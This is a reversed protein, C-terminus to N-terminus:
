LSGRLVISNYYDLFQKQDTLPSKCTFNECLYVKVSGDYSFKGNIIGLKKILNEKGDFLVPDALIVVKNPLYKEFLISIMKQVEKSNSDGSIVIEKPSGWFYDLSGLLYAYSTPYKQVQDLYLKVSLEAKEKLTKDGTFEAIRLLNEITVSNGSPAANDYANRTKVLLKEHDSPTFYFSGTEEDWFKQILIDNLEFGNELYSLDFTTEYLDLLASIFLAYDSLFGNLHSKGNRYTRLVNGDKYMEKHLFDAAKKASSLYREDGLVQYGKCMASIMMGNWATIIKDDTNPAVRKTRERLLKQRYNQLRNKLEDEAINEQKSLDSLKKSVNLINKGEWNGNDSVDYTECFLWAENESLIQKIESKQWVYFKGEEGESDADQSSFYGGETSTMEQLVFDLTERAIEAYYSNNTIQYAELYTVALLANDYLMKEFHPVLWKGDTSYRHFGGGLQDYIGGQAMRLLTKEVMELTLKEGTHFYYRLLFSLEMAQPFKPAAGFGGYKEDFRSKVFNVSSHWLDIGIEKNSVQVQSLQSIHDKFQNASQLLKDREQDWLSAIKGIINKFGVRGWKDEPPFYTGGFFPELDPTLWVSLPWGGSGTMLQVASMYIEDIDPREERDVKICIFHENMLQAISENEFSEQEMVHCWHCASYGISLFIPKDNDLALKLAEEGWPYWDVPNHAHQLLYPSTEKILMNVFKHETRKNLDKNRERFGFFVAVSITIIFIIFIIKSPIKLKYKKTM